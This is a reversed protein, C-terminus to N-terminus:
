RTRGERISSRSRVAQILLASAFCILAILGVRLPGISSIWQSLTSSFRYGVDALGGNDFDGAYIRLTYWGYYSVYLGALGLLVAGLRQVYPSVRRLRSVVTLQATSVAFTLLTLVTGMGFAYAVFHLLGIGLSGGTLSTTVAGLFLPITCALSVFAYSIGFVFVERLGRSRPARDSMLRPGALEFGRYVRVALVVMAIGFVISLWPLKSMLFTSALQLILGIGFFVTVFGATLTAGVSIVRYARRESAAADETSVFYAVWAPLMAFGCPNFVAVMGLGYVYTLALRSM